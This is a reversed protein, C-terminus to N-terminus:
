PLRDFPKIGKKKLLNKLFNSDPTFTERSMLSSLQQRDAFFADQVEEPQPRVPGTYRCSFVRGWLRNYQDEYYFDLLRELTVSRIGTEEKLERRATELFNEGHAVVGGAAIEWLGPYIDKSITRKQVLISDRKGIVLIYASRHILRKARMETRTASCLPRNEEDVIWVLEDRATDTM